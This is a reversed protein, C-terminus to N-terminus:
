KALELNVELIKFSRENYNPSNAKRLSQLADSRRRFVHAKSLHITFSRYGRNKSNLYLKSEPNYVIYRKM